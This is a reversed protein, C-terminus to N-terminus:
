MQLKLAKKEPIPAAEPKNDQERTEYYILCDAVLSPSEEADKFVHAGNQLVHPFVHSAKVKVGTSELEKYKKAFEKLTIGSHYQVTM